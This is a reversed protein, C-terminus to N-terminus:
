AKKSAIRMRDDRVLREVNDVGLAAVLGVNERYVWVRWGGLLPFDHAAKLAM